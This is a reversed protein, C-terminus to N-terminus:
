CVLFGLGSAQPRFPLPWRPLSDASRVSTRRGKITRNRHQSYYRDFRLIEREGNCGRGARVPLDEVGCAVLGGEWSVVGCFDCCRGGGVAGDTGPPRGFPVSDVADSDDDTKSPAKVLTADTLWIM